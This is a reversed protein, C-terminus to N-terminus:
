NLCFVFVRRLNRESSSIVNSYMSIIGEKERISSLYDWFSTFIGFRLVCPKNQRAGLIIAMGPNGNENIRIECGHRLCALSKRKGCDNRRKPM